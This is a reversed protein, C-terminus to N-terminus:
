AELLGLDTWWKQKEGSFLSGGGGGGVVMVGPHLEEAARISTVNVSLCM